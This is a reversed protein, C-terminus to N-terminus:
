VLSFDMDDTLWREEETCPRCQLVNNPLVECYKCWKSNVTTEDDEDFNDDGCISKFPEDAYYYSHHDHHKKNKHKHKHKKGFSVTTVVQEPQQLENEKSSLTSSTERDRPVTESTTSEEYCRVQTQPENNERKITIPRCKFRKMPKNQREYEMLAERLSRQLENNEIIGHKQMYTEKPYYYTTGDQEEAHDFTLNDNPISTPNMRFSPTKLNRTFMNM